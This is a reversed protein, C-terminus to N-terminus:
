REPTAEDVERVVLAKRSLSQLLSRKGFIDNGGEKM